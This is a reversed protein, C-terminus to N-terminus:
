SNTQDLYNKIIASNQPYRGFVSYDGSLACNIKEICSSVSNFEYQLSNTFFSNNYSSSSCVLKRHEKLVDLEILSTVEFCSATLVVDANMLYNRFERVGLPQAVTVNKLKSVKRIFLRYFKKDSKNIRGMFVFDLDPMLEAVRLIFLQNKRCEIRGPCFIIKEEKDATTRQTDAPLLHPFIITKSAILAIDKEISRIEDSSVVLLYESERVLARQAKIIDGYKLDHRRFIKDITVRINWLLQEYKIPEYNSFFAIIKKWGVIGYKLYDSMAQHSSHHLTMFHLPVSDSKCLKLLEYGEIPRDLNCGIVFKFGAVSKPLGTILTCDFHSLSTYIETLLATDGGPKERADHRLVILVKEM